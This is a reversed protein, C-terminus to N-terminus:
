VLPLGTKFEEYVQDCAIPLADTILQHICMVIEGSPAQLANQEFSYRWVEFARADEQLVQLFYARPQGCRAILADQIGQSLSNFLANLDHGTPVEGEPNSICGLAKFWLEVAFTKCVIGPGIPSPTSGHKMDGFCRRGAEAFERAENAIAEVVIDSVKLRKRQGRQAM